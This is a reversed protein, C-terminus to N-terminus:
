LMPWMFFKCRSPAWVKWVMKRFLCYAVKWVAHWLSIKCLIWRKCNTDLNYYRSGPQQYWETGVLPCIWGLPPHDSRTFHGMDMTRGVSSRGTLLKIKVRMSSLHHCETNPCNESTKWECECVIGHRGVPPTAVSKYLPSCPLWFM